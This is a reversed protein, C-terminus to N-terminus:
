TGNGDTLDKIKNLIDERKAGRFIIEAGTESELRKAEARLEHWTMDDVSKKNIYDNETTKQDIITEHSVNKQVSERVSQVIEQARKFTIAKLTYKGNFNDKFESIQSEEIENQVTCHYIYDGAIKYVMKPYIM